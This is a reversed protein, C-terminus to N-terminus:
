YRSGDEYLVLGKEWDEGVTRVLPWLKNFPKGEVSLECYKISVRYVINCLDRIIPGRRSSGPRPWPGVGVGLIAVEKDM